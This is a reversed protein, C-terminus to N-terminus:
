EIPVAGLGYSISREYGDSPSNYIRGAIILETSGGGDLNLASTVKYAKLIETLENITSGSSHMGNRGDVIMFVWQGSENLGVASRPHRSATFATQFDEEATSPYGNNLLLPGAQIINSMDYWDSLGGHPVSFVAEDNDNWGLCGRGEYLEGIDRGSVRLAGIPYGRGGKTIAFFGGNIAAGAGNFSSIYSLPSLGEPGGHSAIPRIRWHTPDITLLVWFKPLIRTNPNTMSPLIKYKYGRFDLFARFRRVINYDELKSTRVGYSGGAGMVSSDIQQIRLLSRVNNATERDKLCYVYVRWTPVGTPVGHRHVYVRLGTLPNRIMDLRFGSSAQKVRSLIADSETRTLENSGYFMNSKAFLAPTMNTAVVLCGREFDTLAGADDFGTPYDNLLDAEFNLGLCEICWRLAERRTVPSDFKEVDDTVYGTRLMWGGPDQANYEPSGSWDLGRVYLLQSLFQYKTVAESSSVGLILILLALCVRRFNKMM